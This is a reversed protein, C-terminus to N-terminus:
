NANSAPSLGAPPITRSKEADGLKAYVRVLQYYAASLGPDYKVAQELEQAAPHLQNAGALLKRIRLAILRIGTLFLEAQSLKHRVHADIPRILLM